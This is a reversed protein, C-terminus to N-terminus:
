GADGGADQKPTVAPQEALRLLAAHPLEELGIDGQAMQALLKDRMRRTWYSAIHNYIGHIAEERVPQAAFFHGIDNAMKVLHSADSM